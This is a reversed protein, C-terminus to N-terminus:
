NSEGDALVAVALTMKCVLGSARQHLPQLWANVNASARCAPPGPDILTIAINRWRGDVVSSQISESRVNPSTICLAVRHEV